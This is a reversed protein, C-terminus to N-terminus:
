EKQWLWNEAFISYDAFDVCGNLDLNVIENEGDLWKDFLERLDDFDVEQDVDFDAINGNKSAEVTGGYAGMNICKGNPWQEDRWDMNPDGSDICVSTNSDTMWSESNADWQGYVSQLHFDWM